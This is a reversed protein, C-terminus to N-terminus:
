RHKTNIVTKNQLFTFQYNCLEQNTKSILQFEDPESAM